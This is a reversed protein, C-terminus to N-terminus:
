ARLRWKKTRKGGDRARCPEYGLKRLVKAMRNMDRQDLQAATKPGALAGLSQLMTFPETQGALWEELAEAWPDCELRDQQQDRALADETPTLWWPLGQRYEALAQAWLQDRDDCIDGERIPGVACCRVAQYRRNGTADRLYETENTTGAFVLQRQFDQAKRAYAPRYTDVTRSLLGKLESEDRSKILQDVEPIECLWKARMDAMFDKAGVNRNSVEYFWRVDPCLCKIATSKKWGQEGELILMCDAKCGPKMVRAVASRLWKACVTLQYETREAGLYDVLNRDVGDWAPLEELYQRVSHFTYKRATAHVAAIISTISPEHAYKGFWAQIGTPHDDENFVEGARWSLHEAEVGRVFLVEKGFDDYAFMKRWGPHTDLTHLTNQALNKVEGKQNKILFGNWNLLLEEPTRESVAIAGDPTTQVEVPTEVSTEILKFVGDLVMDIRVRAPVDGEKLGVGNACLAEKLAPKGLQHLDDYAQLGREVPDVHTTEVADALAELVSEAREQAVGARYLVGGLAGFARDGSTNPQWVTALSRVIAADHETLQTASPTVAIGTVLAATTPVGQLLARWDLAPGPLEVFQVAAGAPCTPLFAPQVAGRLFCGRPLLPLLARRLRTYEAIPLPAALPLLVRWKCPTAIPDWGHSSYALGGGPWETWVPQEAPFEDYDVELMSVTRVHDTERYGRELIATREAATFPTRSSNRRAARQTLHAEIRELDAETGPRLNCGILYGASSKEMGPADLAAMKLWAVLDSWTVTYSPEAPICDYQGGDFLTVAITSHPAIM